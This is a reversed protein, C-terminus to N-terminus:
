SMLIYKTFIYLPIKYVYFLYIIYTSISVFIIFYLYKHRYLYLITIYKYILFYLIFYVQLIYIHVICKLISQYFFEYSSLITQFSFAYGPLFTFIMIYIQCKKLNGNQNLDSQDNIICRHYSRPTQIINNSMKDDLCQPFCYPLKM